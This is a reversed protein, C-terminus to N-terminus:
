SKNDEFDEKALVQSARKAIVRRSNRANDYEDHCKGLFTCFELFDVKGSEDIDIAAWLAKFDSESINGAKGTSLFKWLEDNQIYGDGSEDIKEFEKQLLENSLQDPSARVDITQAIRVAFVKRYRGMQIKRDRRILFFVIAIAVAFSLIIFGLLPGTRIATSPDVYPNASCSPDYKCWLDEDPPMHPKSIISAHNRFLDSVMYEAMTLDILALFEEDDDYRTGRTVDFGALEGNRFIQRVQTTKNCKKDICTSLITYTENTEVVESVGFTNDDGLGYTTSWKGDAWSNGQFIFQLPSGLLRGDLEFTSTAYGTSAFIFGQNTFFGVGAPGYLNLTSLIARTGNITFNTFYQYNSGSVVTGPAFGLLEVNFFPNITGNAFYQTGEYRYLGTSKGWFSSQGEISFDSDLDYRPDTESLCPERIGGCKNGM